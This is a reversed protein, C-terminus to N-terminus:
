DNVAGFASVQSSNRQTSKIIISWCTFKGVDTEIVHHEGRSCNLHLIDRPGGEHLLCCFNSADFHRLGM